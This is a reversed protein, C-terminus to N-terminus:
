GTAVGQRRREKRRASESERRRAEIRARDAADAEDLLRLRERAAAQEIILQERAYADDDAAWRVANIQAKTVAM